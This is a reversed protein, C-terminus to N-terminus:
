SSHGSQCDRCVGNLEIVHSTISVGLGSATEALAQEIRESGLSTVRACAVCTFHHHHPSFAESLEVASKFGNWVRHTVGISEFLHLTRLNVSLILADLDPFVTYIAGLACGVTRALDRAKLASLGGEAIATEAADILAGRLQERREETTM